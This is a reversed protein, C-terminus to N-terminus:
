CAMAPMKATPAPCNGNGATGFKAQYQKAFNVVMTLREFQDRERDNAYFPVNSEIAKAGSQQLVSLAPVNLTRLALDTIGLEISLNEIADHLKGQTESDFGMETMLKKAEAKLEPLTLKSIDKKSNNQM